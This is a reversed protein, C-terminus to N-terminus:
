LLRDPCVSAFHGMKDCRFCEIKSLDFNEQYRDNYRGRNYYRGSRGKGRYYNNYERNSNNYDRNLNYSSSSQPEPKAAYMHKNQTEDEEETVREEYTKLRGIIDEFSTTKLDLIQELSTMLFM